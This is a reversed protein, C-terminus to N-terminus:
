ARMLRHNRVAFWLRVATVGLAVPWADPTWRLVLAVVAVPFAFVWAWVAAPKPHAGIAWASMAERGGRKILAVTSTADLACSITLVLLAIHPATM